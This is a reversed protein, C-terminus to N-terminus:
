LGKKHLGQLSALVILENVTQDHAEVQPRRLEAALALECVKKLDSFLARDTPDLPPSQIRPELDCIISLDDEDLTELWEGVTFRAVRGSRRWEVLYAFLRASFTIRM